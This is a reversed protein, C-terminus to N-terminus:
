LARFDFRSKFRAPFQAFSVDEFEYLVQVFSLALLTQREETPQVFFL